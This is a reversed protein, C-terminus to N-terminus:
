TSNCILYKFVNPSVVSCRFMNLLFKLKFAQLFLIGFDTQIEFVSFLYIFSFFHFLFFYSFFTGPRLGAPVAWRVLWPSGSGSVAESPSATTKRRTDLLQTSSQSVGSGGSSDEVGPIFAAAWAPRYSARAAAPFGLVGGVSRNRELRDEGGDTSV